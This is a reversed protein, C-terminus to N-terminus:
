VLSNPTYTNVGPIPVVNFIGGISIAIEGVIAGTAINIVIVNGPITTPFLATIAILCNGLPTVMFYNVIGPTTFHSVVPSSALLSATTVTRMFNDTVAGITLRIAAFYMVGQYITTNVRFAFNATSFITLNTTVASTIQNVSVVTGKNSIYWFNAGDFSASWIDEQRAPDLVSTVALGGSGFTSLTLAVISGHPVGSSLGGATELDGDQSFHIVNQSIYLRPCKGLLRDDHFQTTVGTGTAFFNLQWGSGTTGEFIYIANLNMGVSADTPFYLSYYYPIAASNQLTPIHPQGSFCLGGGTDPLQITRALLPFLPNTMDYFYIKGTDGEAVIVYQQIKITHWMHKNATFPTARGLFSYTSLGLGALGNNAHTSGDEATHNAGYLLFNTSNATCTISPTLSYATCNTNTIQISNPTTGVSFTVSAPKCSSANLAAILSAWSTVVGLNIATNCSPSVGFNVLATLPFNAATIPISPYCADVMYVLYNQFNSVCSSSTTNPDVKVVPPTSTPTTLNFQVHCTDQVSAVGYAAWAGNTNLIAVVDSISNAIGIIIAATPDYVRVPYPNGSPCGVPATGTNIDVIADTYASPPLVPVGLVVDINPPTAASSVLYWGVKCNGEAFATGYAQWAPTANLIAVLDNINGASGIVSTNTPDKIQAPFYSQPCSAPPNGTASDIVNTSVPCCGAPLQAAGINIGGSCWCDCTFGGIREMEEIVAAVDISCLPQMVAAIVRSHLLQFKQIKISLTPDTLEGPSTNLLAYYEQVKCDLKCLNVNCYVGFSNGISIGDKDYLKYQLKISGGNPFAYIAVTNLYMVYGKGASGIPFLVSAANTATENGPITGGPGEPYRLTWISSQSSGTLGQYTYDTSDTAYIKNNNCQTTVMASAAGFSGCTNSTTGNPACITTNIAFQFIAGTTDKVFLTCTYPVACSFEVQGCPPTGMPTPWSLPAISLTTWNSGSPPYDPSTVSGNHILSGNPSTIMYWWTCLNLRTTGSPVGVSLNTLTIAPIGGSIDYLISFNLSTIDPSGSIPLQM